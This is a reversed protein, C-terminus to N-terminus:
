RTGKVYRALGSYDNCGEIAFYPFTLRVLEMLEQMTPPAAELLVLANDNLLPPLQPLLRRYLSLGDPGGDLAEPPDFSASDPAQPLDATPIYPLNAVVVDFRGERVPEALDGCYFRCRTSVGLRRANEAAVEIAAASVDTADVSAQTEAALTCAIAGCGTGLDLVRMPGQIFGIAEEVLHETEPRPVLVSKDVLFERGCFGVRGLIHAIPEGAKRRGCLTAFELSEKAPPV